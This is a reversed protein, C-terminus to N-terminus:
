EPHSWALSCIQEAGMIFAALHLVTQEQRSKCSVPAYQGIGCPGRFPSFLLLPLNQVDRVHHM